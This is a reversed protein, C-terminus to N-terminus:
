KGEGGAAEWAAYELAELTSEFSYLAAQGIHECLASITHEGRQNRTDLRVALAILAAKSEPTLHISSKQKTM